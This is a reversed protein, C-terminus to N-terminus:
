KALLRRLARQFEPIGVDVQEAVRGYLLATPVRQGPHERQAESLAHLIARELRTLGDRVDPLEDEPARRWRTSM